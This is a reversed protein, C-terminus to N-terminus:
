DNNGGILPELNAALRSRVRHLTVAVTGPTTGLLEAISRHDMDEFYKLIFIEAQRRPLRAIAVRLERAVERSQQLREQTPATDSTARQPSSELAFTSRAYRSQVVDLAANTAARRLYPLAGRSLDPPDPRNALRVFVTQLVDEADDLSGTVRYAARVVAEGHQRYIGELWRIPRDPELTALAEQVHGELLRDEGMDLAGEAELNVV